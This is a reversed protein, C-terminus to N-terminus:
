GINAIKVLKDFKVIKFHKGTVEIIKENRLDTIVKIVNERSVGVLQALEDRRLTINFTLSKYTNQSLNVLIQAFRAHMNKKFFTLSRNKYFIKFSHHAMHFLEHAFHGNRKCTEIFVEARLGMVECGSIATVNVPSRVEPVLMSLLLQDHGSIITLLEHQSGEEQWVKAYGNILCIVNEIKEDQKIINEHTTYKIFLSNNKLISIDEDTLSPFLDFFHNQKYPVRNLYHM